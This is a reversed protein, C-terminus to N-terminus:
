ILKVWSLIGHRVADILTHKIFLVPFSALTVHKEEAL